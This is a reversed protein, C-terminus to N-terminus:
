YEPLESHKKAEDIIPGKKLFSPGLGSGRVVLLHDGERVGFAKLAEERLHVEDSGLKTIYFIRRNAIQITDEQIEEGRKLPNLLSDKLNRQTVVSFGGSKKSGPFVFVMEGPILGYDKIVEPPIMIVGTPRITTWTYVHKGGKVLQPM